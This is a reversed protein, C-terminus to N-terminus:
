GTCTFLSLQLCSPLACSLLSLKFYLAKFILKFLMYGVVVLIIFAAAIGLNIQSQPKLRRKELPVWAPQEGPASSFRQTHPEGDSRMYTKFNRGTKAREELYALYQSRARSAYILLVAFLALELVGRGSIYPFELPNEHLFLLWHLGFNGIVGLLSIHWAYPSRKYYFYLLTISSLIRFLGRAGVSNTATYLLSSLDGVRSTLLDQCIGFGDVIIYLYALSMFLRLPNPHLNNIGVKM